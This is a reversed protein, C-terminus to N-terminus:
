AWEKLYDMIFPDDVIIQFWLVKDANAWSQFQDIKPNSVPYLRLLCTHLSVQPTSGDVVHSWFGNLSILVVVVELNTAENRGEM